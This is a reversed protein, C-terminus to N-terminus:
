TKGEVKKQKVSGRGKQYCKEVPPIFYKLFYPKQRTDLVPGMHKGLLNLFVKDHTTPLYLIKYFAFPCTKSSM